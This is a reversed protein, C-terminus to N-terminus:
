ARRPQAPKEKFNRAKMDCLGFADLLVLFRSWVRPESTRVRVFKAQLAEAIPLNRGWFLITASMFPIFWAINLIYCRACINKKLSSPTQQERGLINTGTFGELKRLAASALAHVMTMPRQQLWCGWRNLSTLQLPKLLNRFVLYVHIKRGFAIPGVEM